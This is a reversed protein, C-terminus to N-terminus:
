GNNKRANLGLEYKQEEERRTLETWEVPKEDTVCWQDIKISPKQKEFWEAGHSHLCAEYGCDYGRGFDGETNIKQKELYALMDSLEVGAFNKDSQQLDEILAVIAKRIREDESEKLEPFLTFISKDFTASFGIMRKINQIAEERTM